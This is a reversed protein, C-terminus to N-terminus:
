KQTHNVASKLVELANLYRSRLSAAKEAPLASLRAPDSNDTLDAIKVKMAGFKGSQALSAIREAYTMGDKPDKTVAQVMQITAESYGRARLDNASIGCDEITDHLLAAHETNEGAHPFIRLLHQHVRLVHGIYPKGAKDTQDKHLERVWQKTDEITPM